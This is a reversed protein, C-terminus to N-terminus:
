LVARSLKGPVRTAFRKANSVASYRSISSSRFRATGATENPQRRRARGSRQVEELPLVARPSRAAHEDDREGHRERRDDRRRRREDPEEDVDEGVARHREVRAQAEAGPRELMAPEEADDREAREPQEDGRARIARRREGAAAARDRPHEAAGLYRAIRCVERALPEQVDDLFHRDRGP